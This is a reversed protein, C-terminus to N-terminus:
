WIENKYLDNINWLFDLKEYALKLTNKSYKWGLGDTIWIFNVNNIEKINDNLQIYSRTIENLKSGNSSYFNTEILYTQNNHYIIFDFKKNIIEKPIKIKINKFTLYENLTKQSYFELKKSSFYKECILEMSKGTRNKRANTDLGIELGLIFNELSQNEIVNKLLKKLGTKNIFDIYTDIPYNQKKFNFIYNKGFEVVFIEHQKIGLLYPIKELMKPENILLKKLDEDFNNSTKLVNLKKIIEKYLNLNNYIKEFDVFFDFNNISPKMNLFWEEFNVKM